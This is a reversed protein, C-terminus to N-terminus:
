GIDTLGTMIQTKYPNALCIRCRGSWDEHKCDLTVLWDGGLGRMVIMAGVLGTNPAARSRRPGGATATAITRKGHFGSAQRGSKM